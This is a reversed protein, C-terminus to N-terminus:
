CLVGHMNGHLNYSYTHVIFDRIRLVIAKVRFNISLLVSIFYYVSNSACDCQTCTGYKRLISLGM